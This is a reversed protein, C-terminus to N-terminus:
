GGAGHEGRRGELPGDTKALNAEDRAQDEAGKQQGMEAVM